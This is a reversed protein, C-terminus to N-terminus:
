RSSNQVIEVRNPLSYFFLRDPWKQFALLQKTAVADLALQGANEILCYSLFDSCILLGVM